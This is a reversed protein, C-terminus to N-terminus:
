AFLITELRRRRRIERRVRRGQCGMGANRDCGEPDTRDGRVFIEAGDNFPVAASWGDEYGIALLPLQSSPAASVRKPRRRMRAAADWRGTRENRVALGRLADNRLDRRGSQRGAVVFFADERPLQCACTVHMPSGGATCRIRRCPPSSSVTRGSVAHHRSSMGKWELTEPKAAANPFWRRATTIPAIALRYGKPLFAGRVPVHVADFTKIHGERRPRSGKGASRAIPATTRLALADIWKGKEHAIETVRGEADTAVLRGDDGGTVLRRGDNTAVLIAGDPHAAIRKEEGIGSPVITGDALAFAPTRGLFCASVGVGLDFIPSTSSLPLKPCPAKVGRGAQPLPIKGAM